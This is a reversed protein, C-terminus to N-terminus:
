SAGIRFAGRFYLLKLGAGAASGRVRSPWTRGPRLSGGPRGPCGRAADSAAACGRRARAVAAARRLQAIQGAHYVTHHVLGHLTLYKSLGTGAARDRRDLVPEELVSPGAQRIATALDACAAFLARRDRDWSAEDTQVYEVALRGGAARRSRRRGAPGPSRAGLRDHAAGTGLDLPRRAGAEPDSGRRHCREAALRRQSRAVSRRDDRSGPPRCPPRNRDHRGPALKYM